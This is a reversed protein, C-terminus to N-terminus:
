GAAAPVLDATEENAPIGTGCITWPLGMARTASAVDQRQCHVHPETSNGTNGCAALRSGAAVVDGVRVAASGQQLHAIAFHTGDALRLVVHNGLMGRAGRLERPLSEVFFWALGLWSSRSRHDRIGDVVRVVEGDAPAHIPQGFAPFREPPLFAAGATGFQPRDVGAPVAVLDVAYTQGYGHTGHSPVTSTPSNIAMWAGSVPSALELPEGGAAPAAVTMAVGAGFLLVGLVVVVAGAVGLDLDVGAVDLVIAVLALVVIVSGITQFPM